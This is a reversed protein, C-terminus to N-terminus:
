VRSRILGVSRGLGHVVERLLELKKGAIDTMQNSLGTANRAQPRRNGSDPQLRLPPRKRASIENGGARPHLLPASPDCAARPELVAEMAEYEIRL